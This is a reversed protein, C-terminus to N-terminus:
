SSNKKKLQNDKFSERLDDVYIYYVFFFELYKIDKERLSVENGIVIEKSINCNSDRKKQTPNRWWWSGWNSEPIICKKLLLM